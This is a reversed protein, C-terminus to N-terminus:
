TFTVTIGLTSTIHNLAESYTKFLPQSNDTYSTNPTQNAIRIIKQATPLTCSQVQNAFDVLFRSLENSDMPNVSASNVYVIGSTFFGAFSLTESLEITSPFIAGGKYSLNIRVQAHTSYIKLVKVNGRFADSLEIYLQPNSTLTNGCYWHLSECNPFGGNRIVKLNNETRSILIKVKDMVAYEGFRDDWVTFGGHMLFKVNRLYSLKQNLNFSCGSNGMGTVLRLSNLNPMDKKFWISNVVGTGGSSVWEHYFTTINAMDTLFIYSHYSSYSSFVPADSMLASVNYAIDTPRDRQSYQRIFYNQNIGTNLKWQAPADNSQSHKIVIDADDFHIKRESNISFLVRKDNVTKKVISM